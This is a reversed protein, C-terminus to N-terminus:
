RTPQHSPKRQLTKNDMTVEATPCQERLTGTQRERNCRTKRQSFFAREHVNCATNSVNNTPEKAFVFVVFTFRKMAWEIMSVTERAALRRSIRLAAHAAPTATANPAGM